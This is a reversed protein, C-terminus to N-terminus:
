FTKGLCAVVRKGADTKMAMAVLKGIVAATRAVEDSSSKYNYYLVMDIMKTGHKLDTDTPKKQAVAKENRTKPKM